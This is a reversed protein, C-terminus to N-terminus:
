QSPEESLIQMKLWDFSKDIVDPRKRIWHDMDDIRFYTIPAGAERAKQVFQDCSTIDSDKAGKVVLFPAHIKSYDTPPEQLADAHYFYTMGGMSQDPTPNQIIYQVLTDFEERTQPIDPSFPVWRPIADYLRMWFSSQKWSEFFQWLEDAWPWDGAGVWNVTALVNPCTTALDTVLHGGESVGIFILKGNWGEPPHEELHKIVTLHDERRRSRSYHNWFEEEHIHNGDIGRQEITLYGVHLSQVREAFYKRIFLVSELDGKSSSGECLILIPYTKNITTPPSFYYVIPSANEERQATFRISSPIDYKEAKLSISFTLLFSFFIIFVYILRM